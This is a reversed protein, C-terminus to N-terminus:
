PLVFYILTVDATAPAGQATGVRFYVTNATPLASAVCAVNSVSANVSCANNATADAASAVTNAQTAFLATGAGGAATFLGWTSTTLTQSAHDIQVRFPIFRTFGAPLAIAMANDSNAANFNVGTLKTMYLGMVDAAPVVPGAGVMDSVTKSNIKFSTGNATNITKNSLVTAATEKATALGGFPGIFTTQTGNDTFSTIFETSVSYLRNDNNILSQFKGGLLIAGTSGFKNGATTGAGSCNILVPYNGNLTWDEASGNSENDLNIYTNRSSTADEVLGGAANSEITGGRFYNNIAGTLVVAKNGSAGCGEVILKEFQCAVPKTFDVGRGPQVLFAGDTNNSIRIDFYSEVASSGVLGTDAGYLCTASDRLVVKMHGFHWNDINVERTTGGAPNGKLAIHGPGGFVGGICGQSGPYTNMGSFQNAIGTGVHIFAANEGPATIHLNNYAWNPATSHLYNGDPVSLSVGRNRAETIATNIAAIDDTGYVVNKSVATVTTVANAALTVHEADTFGQITTSLVAGATGAGPVWIGKGVDAAKFVAGTAQLANTGSNITVTATVVIGDGKAFDKLDLVRGIKANVTSAIAGTGAQTFTVDVADPQTQVSTGDTLISSIWKHAVAAKSFVGGLAVATPPTLTAVPLAVVFTWKGAALDTAFVGSTHAVAARYLNGNQIVGTEAAYFTATAWATAPALGATQLSPSLSDHTVIGNQLANDSRITGSIFTELAAISAELGALDADLQTGPFSNDGQSQQFGTYSYTIDYLVPYAM